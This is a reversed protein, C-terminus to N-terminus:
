RRLLYYFISIILNNSSPTVQGIKFLLHTFGTYHTGFFSADHYDWIIFFFKHIHSRYSSPSFTHIIPLYARPGFIILKGHRDHILHKILKLCFPYFQKKSPVRTIILNRDSQFVFFFSGEGEWISGKCQFFTKRITHHKPFM